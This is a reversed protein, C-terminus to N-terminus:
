LIANYASPTDVVLLDVMLEVKKPSMGFALKLKTTGRSHLTDGTFGVLPSNVKQLANADMGMKQFTSFYLIDASSGTDM